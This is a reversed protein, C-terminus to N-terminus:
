ADRIARRVQHPTLPATCGLAALAALGLKFGLAAAAGHVRRLLRVRSRYGEALARVDAAGEQDACTVAADPVFLLDWGARRLRFCWEATTDPEALQPNFLGTAALAERRILLCAGSVLDVPRLASSQSLRYSPFSPGYLRRGLGSAAFLERGLTPTAAFSARFSGQDSLVLGGAAGAGPRGILAEHLAEVAGPLPSVGPGLILLFPAASCGASLYEGAVANAAAATLQAGHACTVTRMRYGLRGLRAAIVRKRAELSPERESLVAVELLPKM